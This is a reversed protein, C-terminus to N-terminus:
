DRENVRECARGDRAAARKIRLFNALVKTMMRARLGRYDRADDFANEAFAGRGCFLRKRAAFGGKVSDARAFVSRGLPTPTFLIHRRRLRNPKAAALVAILNLPSSERRRSRRAEPYKREM